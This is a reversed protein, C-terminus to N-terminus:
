ALEGVPVALVLSHIQAAPVGAARLETDLSQVFVAPGALYFDCNIEFLDARMARALQLAGFAVDPEALLEYEFLDLAQSWARCQNALFHGDPRTALWFLSLSPATDLALAHEILSKVPAFGTDCAAFVLPRTSEALVFDGVPGWVTVSDGPQIRDSFLQCSLPDLPHREIFFLLNRDDCPCSAIPYQAHVDSGDPRHLGLTVSQGALFRLRYNRPTQLHLQRTGPALQTVARVTTVIQQQPIDQPGSAELLELTLESSAATHACALAYGQAREAESLPYDCPQTRAVEGSIVRVKCMGCTGNGCGYNLKLGALLGAQLLTTHGEVIFQHGSPRVTVQATMVKLMDDMVTLLDAQETALAQALGHDVFDQLESLALPTAGDDRLAHIRTQLAIVLAHYRQLLRRMDALEQTQHFLRQALVEQSPLLRERLRKGFAEDRIHTVRELMGTEELQVDPYLRLLEDTAVLGENLVLAGSRVQQQLAGRTVGVIQAARWLTLWHSM